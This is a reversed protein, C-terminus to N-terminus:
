GRGVRVILLPPYKLVSLKKTGRGSDRVVGGREKRKERKGNLEQQELHDSYIKVTQQIVEFITSLTNSTETFSVKSFRHVRRIPTNLMPM